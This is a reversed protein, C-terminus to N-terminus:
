EYRFHREKAGTEGFSSGGAGVQNVAVVALCHDDALQKLKRAIQIIATARQISSTQSFAQCFCHLLHKM